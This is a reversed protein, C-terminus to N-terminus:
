AAEEFTLLKDRYYAYQKRRAEIEAPLGTSIDNVLADFVRVRAALRRQEPLAPVPIEYAFFSKSDVAAMSGDTRVCQARINESSAELAQYVYEADVGEGPVLARVDQNVTTDMATLGIPLTRRLINSRMVVVVAPSPIIRLSTEGLAASTVRGRITKAGFESVDMSALWPIEGSQWYRPKTKSPTVGGYWTGLDSLKCWRVGASAPGRFPLVQDRYYAYQRRRAELEAELEAELATFNDLIEVIARQVEVPPVPIRFESYQSIWHRAHEQAQFGICLMAYYIFRFDTEVGPLPTLMKMASSKAKFPFDVWKFATTFDDFIIVPRASSAPFVGNTENTYGLIFTQGATLVPTEYSDHYDTSEVLYKGPQEYQLLEGLARYEVGGPCHQAILEDIRSM